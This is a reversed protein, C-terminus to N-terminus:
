FPVKIKEMYKSLNMDTKSIINPYYRLVTGMEYENENIHNDLLENAVLVDLTKYADEYNMGNFKMIHSIVEERPIRCIVPLTWEGYHEIAHKSYLSFILNEYKYAFTRQMILKKQSEERLDEQIKQNKLYSKEINDKNIKYFKDLAQQDTLNRHKKRWDEYQWRRDSNNITHLQDKEKDQKKDINLLYLIFAGIAIIFLITTGDIYM